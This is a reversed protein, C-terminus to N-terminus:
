ESLEKEDMKFVRFGKHVESVVLREAKLLALAERIPTKIFGM